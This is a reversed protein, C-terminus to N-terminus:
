SFGFRKVLPATSGSLEALLADLHARLGDVTFADATTAPSLLYRRDFLFAQVDAAFGEPENAVLRFLPSARLDSAVSRSIRALEEPAAGEIGILLLSAAAGSRLEDLLLRAAPTEGPPLFDGMDARVTVVRAFVAAGALALALLTLLVPLARRLTM